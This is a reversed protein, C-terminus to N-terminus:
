NCFSRFMGTYFCIKWVTGDQDTGEKMYGFVQCNMEFETKNIPEGITRYLNTKIKEKLKIIAVQNQAFWILVYDSDSNYDQTKTARNLEVGTYLDIERFYYESYSNNSKKYKVGAEVTLRGFCYQTIIGVFLLLLLKKKM